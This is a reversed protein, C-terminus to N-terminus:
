NIKDIKSDRSALISDFKKSSIKKNIFDDLLEMSDNKACELIKLDNEFSSYLLESSFGSQEEGLYSGPGRLRFDIESIDFGSSYKELANLRENDTNKTVLMCYSEKDGRGVRGRLQHLTALGFRDADMIIMMTSNPINIGVEIVTTSVLIKYKGNKFGMIAENKDINKMKGHIVTYSEDPLYKEIIEKCTDLDMYNFDENETILPVVFYAQEGMDLHNKISKMLGTINDINIVKTIIPKRGKPMEKISSIDLDRFFTLGLTRPIPTASLFMSDVDKYKDILRIRQNVGFRHQEDIIVLGLKSFIVNDNLISHTGILINIRNNVLRYIIDDYERKKIGSKILEISVNYNKLYDIFSQYHQDALVETPVMIAVQYGADVMLLSLAIAVITKGSGEDGQILRNMPYPKNIDNISEKISEIQDNTLEYPLNSIFTNLLDLNLNRKEKTNNKRKSRVLDFSISYWFFEEYKRRRLVEIVDNKNEPFHTKYLYDKINLLRYKQILSIPLSEEFDTYSLIANKVIRLFTFNPIDKIKYDNEIKFGLKDTFIKRISFYNDKKNYRGYAGITMGRKLRVGAYLTTFLNMKLKLSGSEIFFSFAYAKGRFKYMSVNSSIVGEVYTTEGALLKNNDQEYIIYDLPFKFLLDEITFIGAQNLFYLTKEGVGKVKKLEM